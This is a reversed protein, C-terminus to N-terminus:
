TNPDHACSRVDHIIWGPEKRRPLTFAQPQHVLMKGGLLDSTLKPHGLGRDVGIAVAGAALEADVVAVAGGAEGALEVNVM